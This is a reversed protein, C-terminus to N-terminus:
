EVSPKLVVQVDVVQDLLEPNSVKMGIINAVLVRALIVGVVGPGLLGSSM